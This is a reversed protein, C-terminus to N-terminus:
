GAECLYAMPTRGVRTLVVTASERGSLKLRPRL